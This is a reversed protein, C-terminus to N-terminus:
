RVRGPCRVAQDRRHLREHLSLVFKEGREEEVKAFSTPGIEIKVYELIGTRMPLGNLLHRVRIWENM